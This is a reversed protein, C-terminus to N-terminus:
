TFKEILMSVALPVIMWALFRLTVVVEDLSRIWCRFLFYACGASYVDGSRNIFRDLSPNTLTGLVLTAVAWYIFVKDLLTVELNSNEGKVLVRCVGVFLLVRFLPFHLGGIVFMQGLPMYCTTILLPILAHRRSVCWTMITACLLFFCGLGSLSSDFDM